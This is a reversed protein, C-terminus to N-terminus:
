FQTPIMMLFQKQKLPINWLYQSILSSTRFYWFNPIIIPSLLCHQNLAIQLTCNKCLEIWVVRPRAFINMPALSWIKTNYKWCRSDKKVCPSLGRFFYVVVWHNIIPNPYKHITGIKIVNKTKKWSSQFEFTIHDDRRISHSLM